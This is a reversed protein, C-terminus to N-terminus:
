ICLGSTEDCTLPACCQTDNTCGSGCRGNVCAQNGCQRCSDCPHNPDAPPPCEEGTKTAGIDYHITTDNGTFYNTYISGYMILPNQSSATHHFTGYGTWILGNFYGGNSLSMAESLNGGGGAACNGTQDCVGSCCDTNDSCTGTGTCGSGGIWIRSRRPYAPSGLEVINSVNAAAGIFIDLTATPDLDLILKQSVRVAGAIFIATRGHVVITTDHGINMQNFYYYGCQLDVRVTTTVNDFLSYPINPTNNFNDNFASSSFHNVISQVDFLSGDTGDDKGCPPNPKTPTASGAGYGNTGWWPNATVCTAGNTLTVAGPVAACDPTYLNSRLTMAPNSGTTWPGGVYSKGYVTSTKAVDISNDNVFIGRVTTAGKQALGTTGYVWFAGGVDTTANNSAVPAVTGNVGIGGGICKGNNPGTPGVCHVPYACVDGATTCPASGNGPGVGPTSSTCVDLSKVCHLPACTADNGVTCAPVFSGSTSDFADQLLSQSLPGIQTRSCLGFTFAVQGLNGTCIDGQGPVPVIIPPGGGICKAPPTYGTPPPYTGQVCTGASCHKGTATDCATGPCGGCHADNDDPNVCQGGCNILPTPCTATCGGSVCLPTQGGCQNTCSGCHNPDTSENVCAGSCSDTGFPCKCQGNQCTSGVACTFSSGCGGCDLTTGDSQPIGSNFDVCTNGCHTTGVACCLGTSCQQGGSCPANCAGCNNPDTQFNTCQNNCANPFVGGTAVSCSECVGSVCDAPTPCTACATSGCHNPDTQTDTCVNCSNAPYPCTATCAGNVCHDGNTCVHTPGTSGCAGCNNDDTLTNVCAPPTGCVASGPNTAPDLCCLGSLNVLPDNCCVGGQCTQGTGCVDGGAAVCAGCNTESSNTDICVGNCNVETSKCCIHSTGSTKCSTAPSQTNCNNSCSGCTAALTIDTCVGGCNVQGTPCCVGLQCSNGSGCAVGCSNVNTSCHNNDNLPNVCVGGCLVQGTPCDLQCTGNVCEDTPGCVIGCNGCHNPDTLVDVCSGGCAMTGGTCSMTSCTGGNCVQNAACKNGCSGCNDHDTNTFVCDGSCNTEGTGCSTACVGGSCLTSATTTCDIGCTGCHTNDTNLDVCQSGCATEGPGCCIGNTCTEGSGCAHGCTGCNLPDTLPNSCSGSCNLEGTQCCVHSSGNTACVRSTSTCDTGCVGTTAGCTTNDGPLVCQGNCEVKGAGCCKGNSCTEGAGTNCPQGCGGCNLNDTKPDSCTGGCNNDGTTCCKPNPTTTSSTTTCTEGSNCVTTCNGCHNEDTNLDFCQQGQSTTCVTTSAGCCTGNDCTDGSNCTMSCSGCHNEDTSWDVCTGGCNHQGAPCCKSNTGDTSCTDTGSCTVGCAGCNGNDTTPDVCADGCKIKPSTCTLADPPADVAADSGSGGGDSGADDRDYGHKNDGCAAAFSLVTTV